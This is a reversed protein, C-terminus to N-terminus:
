DAGTLCHQVFLESGRLFALAKSYIKDFNQPSIPQNVAGWNVTSETLDDRVIFKDKPSRGTFQGTRVVLAGDNALLGEGCRISHEILQEAGLNCFARRVDRIGLQDFGEPIAPDSIHETRDARM